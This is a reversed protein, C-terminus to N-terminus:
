SPASTTGASGGHTHTHTKGINVGDHTLAPGTAAIGAASITISSGNSAFKLDDATGIITTKGDISVKLEGAKDHPRTNGAGFSSLAIVADTMDGSESTVKVLQGMVPEAQISLTGSSLAEVPMWPSILGSGERGIQVRYLGKAEDVAVVKGERSRGRARRNQDEIQRALRTIVSSLDSM